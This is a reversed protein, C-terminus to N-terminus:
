VIKGMFRLSGQRSQFFLVQEFLSQCTGKVWANCNVYDSGSGFVVELRVPFVVASSILREM